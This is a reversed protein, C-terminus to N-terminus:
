PQDLLLILETNKIFVTQDCDTWSGGTEFPTRTYFNFFFCQESQCTILNAGKKGWPEQMCALHSIVNKEGQGGQQTVNNLKGGAITQM